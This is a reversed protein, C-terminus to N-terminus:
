VCIGLEKLDERTLETLIDPGIKHDSFTDAYRGLELSELWTQM